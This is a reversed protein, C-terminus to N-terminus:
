ASRATRLPASWQGDYEILRDRGTRGDTELVSHTRGGVRNRAELILVDLGADALDRAASLGALGAGVVAVDAEDPV